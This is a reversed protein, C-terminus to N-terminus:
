KGSLSDILYFIAERYSEFGKGAFRKRCALGVYSVHRFEERELPETLHVEAAPIGVALLADLIAISTHTYAAANIVIGDYKGIADQIIDVLVGEHNSQRVTCEIGAEECCRTIYTELERYTRNGYLAPERIGLMNLNPGNIILLKM